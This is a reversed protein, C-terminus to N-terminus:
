ASYVGIAEQERVRAGIWDVKADKDGLSTETPMELAPCVLVPVPDRRPDFRGITFKSDKWM